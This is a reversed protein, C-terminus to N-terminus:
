CDYSLFTVAVNLNLTTVEAGGSCDSQNHLLHIFSRDFHSIKSGIIRGCCKPHTFYLIVHLQGARPRTNYLCPM